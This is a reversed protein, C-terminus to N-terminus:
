IRPRTDELERASITLREGTHELDSGSSVSNSQVVVATVNDAGGAAVAAAVLEVAATAPDHRVLIDAIRRDDLEKSLGDSCLLFTQTGIMPLLWVDADVVDTAGIARTIVNRDPHVAAEALTIAGDDLLEQVASHDVSLQTLTRGDFQYVRSDGINFAMWQLTGASEVVAVGALTTGSLAGDESIERVLDNAASIAGLIESTTAADTEPIQSVFSERVAQSARDGARHGGMGDAVLYISGTALFSDENVLRVSGVDSAAGATLTTTVSGASLTTTLRM